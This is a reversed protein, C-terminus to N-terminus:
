TRNRADGCYLYKKSLYLKKLSIYIIKDRNINQYDYEYDKLWEKVKNYNNM